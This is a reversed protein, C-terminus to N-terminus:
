TYNSSRALGHAVSLPLTKVPMLVAVVGAGERSVPRAWVMVIRRRDGTGRFSREIM